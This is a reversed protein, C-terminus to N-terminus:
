NCASLLFSLKRRSEQLKNFMEDVIQKAEILDRQGSKLGASSGPGLQPNIPVPQLIGVNNKIVNGPPVPHNFRPSPTNFGVGATTNATDPTPALSGLPTSQPQSLSTSLQRDSEPTAGNSFMGSSVTGYGVPFSSVPNSGRIGLTNMVGSGGGNNGPPGWSRNRSLEDTAEQLLKQQKLLAKTWLLEFSLLLSKYIRCVQNTINQTALPDESSSNTFGLGDSIATWRKNKEV